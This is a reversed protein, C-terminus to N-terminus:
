CIVCFKQTQKVPLETNGRWVQVEIRTDPNMWDVSNRWLWRQRGGKGLRDVCRDIIRIVSQRLQMDWWLVLNNYSLGVEPIIRIEWGHGNNIFWYSQQGYAAYPEFNPPGPHVSTVAFLMETARRAFAVSPLHMCQVDSAPDLSAPFPVRSLNAFPTLSTIGISGVSPSTHPPTPQSENGPAQQITLRTFTILIILHTFHCLHIRFISLFM